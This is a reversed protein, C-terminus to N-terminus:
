RRSRTCILPRPMKVTKAVHKEAGGLDGLEEWCHTCYVGIRLTITCVCVWVYHAVVFLFGSIVRGLASGPRVILQVEIYIKDVSSALVGAVTQDSISHEGEGFDLVGRLDIQPSPDAGAVCAPDSRSRPCLSCIPHRNAGVSLKSALFGINLLLPNSIAGTAVTTYRGPRGSRSISLHIAYSLSCALTLGGGALRCAEWTGSENWGVDPQARPRPQWPHSHTSLWSARYWAARERGWLYKDLHKCCQTARGQGGNRLAETVWVPRWRDADCVIGRGEPGIVFRM